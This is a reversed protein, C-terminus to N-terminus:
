ILRTSRQSLDCVASLSGARAFRAMFIVRLLALAPRSAESAGERVFTSQGRQYVDLETRQFYCSHRGNQRLWIPVVPGTAQADTTLGPSISSCSPVFHLRLVQSPTQRKIHFQFSAFSPCRFSLHHRPIDGQVHWGVMTIAPDGLCETANHFTYWKRWRCYFHRRPQPCM